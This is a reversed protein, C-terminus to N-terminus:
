AETILSETKEIALQADSSSVHTYIQTTQISSHGLLEQVVRINTHKLLRTAFTHRLTHPTIARGISDLSLTKIIRQFDRTSLPRLSYKSIFLFIIPTKDFRCLLVTSIYHSLIERTASTIPIERKKGNKAIRSPVSLINSVDGFPSVDELYLGVLESVRLGTSIALSIMTYDRLSHKRAASLLHSIEADNITKIM